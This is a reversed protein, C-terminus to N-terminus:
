ATLQRILSGVDQIPVIQTEGSTRGTVEAGGAALSKTSIVVRVPVGILDADKLKVGPSAQRDDLVAEVGQAILSAYLEAAQEECSPLGIVHALFPAALRPWGLGRDDGFGAALSGVVTTMDLALCIGTLPAAAGSRDMYSGLRVGLDPLM